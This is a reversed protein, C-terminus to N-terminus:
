FRSEALIGTSQLIPWSTKNFLLNVSKHFIDYDQEIMSQSNVLCPEIVFSFAIFEKRIDM